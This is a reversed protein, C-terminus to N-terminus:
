FFIYKVISHFLDDKLCCVKFIVKDRESLDNYKFEIINNKFKKGRLKRKLEFYGIILQYYDEVKIYSAGFSELSKRYTGRFWLIVYRNNNNLFDIITEEGEENGVIIIRKQKTVLKIQAVGGDFDRKLFYNCIYDNPPIELIRTDLVEM